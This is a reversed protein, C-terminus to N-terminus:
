SISRSDVESRFGEENSTGTTELWGGDPEYVVRAVRTLSRKENHLELASDEFAGSQPRVLYCIWSRRGEQFLAVLFRLYFAVAATCLATMIVMVAM